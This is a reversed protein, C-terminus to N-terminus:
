PQDLEFRGDCALIADKIMQSETQDFALTKVAAEIGQILRSNQRSAVTDFAQLATVLAAADAAGTITSKVHQAYDMCSKAELPRQSM